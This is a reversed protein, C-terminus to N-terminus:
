YIDEIIHWGVYLGFHRPDSFNNYDSTLYNYDSYNYVNSEGFTNYLINLDAPNIIPNTLYYGPSIIISYNTNHKDMILKIKQLILEKDKTILPKSIQQFEIQSIQKFFVERTWETCNKLSDKSPCENFKYRNTSEWDNSITDFGIWEYRDLNRDRISQSIFSPKVFGNFLRFQFLLFPQKSFKYHKISLVKTPEQQESFSSPLDLLILANNIKEGQEDIYELKQKIGTITEAWGQFVFQRASDPLYQKWHYSNLGCARSSGFIFSDYHYTPNNKLYLESSLYDRNTVDYYHLSFPKLTRFPDTWIYLSVLVIIPILFSLGLTILFKKM